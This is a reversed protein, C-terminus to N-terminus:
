RASTANAPEILANSARRELRRARGEAHDALAQSMAGLVPGIGFAVMFTAIGFTGGLALGVVFAGLELATRIRTRALGRLEGARMLLEFAGGTSGSHVVLSIGFGLGAIGAFVFLFRAILTDPQNIWGSVADIAFGNTIMYAIGWRSPRQGFVAAITFLIGTLVWVTQGFSIGLRPQLGSVLVDYPTLGLEAQVLLSVAIGIFASGVLLSALRRMPTHARAPFLRRAAVLGAQRGFGLRGFQEIVASLIQSVGRAITSVLPPNMRM